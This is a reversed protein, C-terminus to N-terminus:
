ADACFSTPKRAECPSDATTLLYRSSPTPLREHVRWGHGSIGTLM